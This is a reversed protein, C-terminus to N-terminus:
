FESAIHSCLIDQHCNPTMAEHAAREPKAKISHTADTSNQTGKVM